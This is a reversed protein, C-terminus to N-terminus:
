GGAVEVPTVIDGPQVNSATDWPGCYRPTFHDWPGEKAPAGYFWDEAGLTRTNRDVWTVVLEGPLPTCADELEEIIGLDAM